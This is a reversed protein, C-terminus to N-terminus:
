EQDPDAHSAGGCTSPADGPSLAREPPTEGSDLPPEAFRSSCENSQAGGCGTLAVILALVTLRLWGMRKAPRM